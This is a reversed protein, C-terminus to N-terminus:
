QTPCAAVLPAVVKHFGTIDIGVTKTATAKWPTYTVAVSRRNPLSKVFAPADPLFAATNLLFVRDDFAQGHQRGAALEQLTSDSTRM